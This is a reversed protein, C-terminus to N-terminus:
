LGRLFTLLAERDTASLGQFQTVVANAESGPSSHAHIATTLDGTRGDHLLFLRQGVGWLPATRFQAGGVSGQTIGDGLAGMTHVLFDSFAPVGGLSPTHCLGCGIADFVSQGTPTLPPPPPPLARMFAVFMQVDGDVDNPSPGFQCHKQGELETPLMTTTIGMEVTYAEAAFAELDFHQAKWGFRGLRGAQGGVRSVDGHIGLPTATPAVATRNALITADPIAEVLGAGFLPTPIRFIVNQKRLQQDFNPQQVPCEPVKGPIDSRDRIVFLQHVQGDDKFRAERIPGTLTIFSPLENRAGFATALDVQPNIPPSTGGLSPFAHCGGCSDLNFRPGLGDAVVETDAFVEAPTQASAPAVALVLLYGLVLLLRM